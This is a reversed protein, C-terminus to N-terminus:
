APDFCDPCAGGSQLLRCITGPHKKVIDHAKISVSYTGPIAFDAINFYLYGGAPTTALKQNLSNNYHRVTQNEPDLVTVDIQLNAQGQSDTSFGALDYILHLVEGPRFPTDARLPGNKAQIFAINVIRLEGAAPVVNQGPTIAPGTQPSQLTVSTAYSGAVKHIRWAFFICGAIVAVWVVIGAILVVKSSPKRNVVLTGAVHDGVRQRHKSFRAVLFGVLYVALADVIRLLNRFLSRRLGCAGGSMDTVKIGTIMKGLTAGFLGEFFWYYLFVAVSTLSIALLAPQGEMSFGSSTAAGFRLAVFM